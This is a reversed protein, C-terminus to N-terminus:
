KKDGEVGGPTDGRTEGRGADGTFAATAPPGQGPPTEAAGHQAPAGRRRGRPPAHAEAGGSTDGFEVKEDAKSPKGPGRPANAMHPTADQTTTPSRDVEADGETGPLPEIAGNRALFEVDFGADTLEAPTVIRDQRFEVMPKSGLRSNNPDIPQNSQLSTHVVRYKM